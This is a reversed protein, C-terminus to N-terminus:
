ARGAFFIIHFLFCKSIFSRISTIRPMQCFAIIRIHVTTTTTTPQRKLRFKTVSIRQYHKLPSYSQFSWVREGYFKNRICNGTTYLVWAFVCFRLFYFFLFPVWQFIFEMQKPFFIFSMNYLTETRWTWHNIINNQHSKLCFIKCKFNVVLSLPLPFFRSLFKLTNTIWHRHTSISAM